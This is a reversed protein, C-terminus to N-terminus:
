SEDDFWEPDRRHQLKDLCEIHYLVGDDVGDSVAEEFLLDRKCFFCKLGIDKLRRPRTRPRGIKKPIPDDIRSYRTPRRKPM